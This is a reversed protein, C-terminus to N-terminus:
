ITTQETNLLSEATPKEFERYLAAFYERRPVCVFKRMQKRSGIVEESQNEAFGKEGARALKMWERKHAFWLRQYTAMEIYEFRRTDRYYILLISNLHVRECYGLQSGKATIVTHEFLIDRYDKERTKADIHVIQGAGTMLTFDAGLLQIQDYAFGNQHVWVADPFLEYLKLNLISLTEMETKSKQEFTQEKM